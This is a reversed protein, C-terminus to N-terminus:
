ELGAKFLVSTIFEILFGYIIGMIIIMLFLNHSSFMPHASGSLINYARPLSFILGFVVGRVIWHLFRFRNVGLAFGLLTRSLVISVARNLPINPQNGAALFYCIFGFLLGLITCLLLRTVKKM